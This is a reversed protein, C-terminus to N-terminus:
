NTSQLMSSHCYSTQCLKRKLSHSLFKLFGDETNPRPALLHPQRKIIFSIMTLDQRTIPGFNSHMLLNPGLLAVDYHRPICLGGIIFDHDQWHGPYDSFIFPLASVFIPQLPHLRRCYTSTSRADFISPLKIVSVSPLPHPMRYYIPTSWIDFIPPLEFIFVPPLPHVRWHYIPTSQIDFISPLSFAFVPPM